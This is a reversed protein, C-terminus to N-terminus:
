YGMNSLSNEPSRCDDVMWLCGSFGSVEVENVGVYLEKGQLVDPVGSM